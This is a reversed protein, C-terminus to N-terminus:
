RETYDKVVNDRSTGTIGDHHQFLALNRRASVVKTMLEFVPLTAGPHRKSKTSALTFLIEAGRYSIAHIATKLIFLTILLTNM